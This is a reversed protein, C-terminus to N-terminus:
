LFIWREKVSYLPCTWAYTEQSVSLLMSFPSLLFEDNGEFFLLKHDKESEISMGTTSMAPFPQKWDLEQALIKIETWGELLAPIWVFM